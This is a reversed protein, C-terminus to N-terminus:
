RSADAKRVVLRIRPMRPSQRMWALQIRFEDGFRDLANINVWSLADLKEIAIIPACSGPGAEGVKEGFSQMISVLLQDKSGILRYVTGTGLEAASAIDRITTM